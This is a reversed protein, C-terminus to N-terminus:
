AKPALAEQLRRRISAELKTADVGAVRAMMGLEVKVDVTTDSVQVDGSVGTGKIDAKSGSWALKVRYKGLMEEFSHLASRAAEKGLQHSQQVRVTAM